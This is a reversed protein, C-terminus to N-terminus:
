NVKNAMNKVRDMKLDKRTERHISIGANNAREAKREYGIIASEILCSRKDLKHGLRRLM